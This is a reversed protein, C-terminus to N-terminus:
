QIKQQKWANNTTLEVTYISELQTTELKWFSTNIKKWEIDKEMM